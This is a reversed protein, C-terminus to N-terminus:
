VENASAPTQWMIRAINKKYQTSCNIMLVEGEVVDYTHIKRELSNMQWSGDVTLNVSSLIPNYYVTIFMIESQSNEEFEAHCQWFREHEKKSAKYIVFGKKPDFEDHLI